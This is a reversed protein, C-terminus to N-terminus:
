WFAREVRPDQYPNQPGYVANTMAATLEHRLWEMLGIKRAPLGKQIDPQLRDCSTAIDQIMARNMRDLNAGPAMANRIAQYSEISIGWEGDEGNLNRLVIKGADDSWDTMRKGVQAEIPKFSFNKPRRDIAGILEYSNIIYINM